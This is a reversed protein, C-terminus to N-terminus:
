CFDVFFNWFDCNMVYMWVVVGILFVDKCVILDDFEVFGGYCVCGFSLLNEGFILFVVGDFDFYKM